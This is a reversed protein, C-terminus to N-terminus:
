AVLEGSVEWTNTARKYLLIQAYQAESKLRSYKSELTVGSGPGVTIQGGSTTQQLILRTGVDFAVDSNPPVTVAVASSATMRKFKNADGLVLTYSTSSEDEPLPRYDPGVAGTWYTPSGVYLLEVSEDEVWCRWGEKPPFFKWAGNLWATINFDKAAWLGTAGSAVIYTDGDSPSGPPATLDRDLVSLMTLVDLSLMAENFTVHKQAQNQAMLPLILKTTDAM